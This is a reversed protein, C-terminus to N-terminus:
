ARQRQLRRAVQTEAHSAMEGQLSPPSAEARTKSRSRRVQSIPGLVQELVFAPLDKIHPDSATQARVQHKARTRTSSKAIKKKNKAM